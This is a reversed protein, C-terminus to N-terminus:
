AVARGHASRVRLRTRVSSATGRLESFMRERAAAPCGYWRRTLDMGSAVGDPRSVSPLHQVHHHNPRWLARSPSELSRSRCDFLTAGRLPPFAPPVQLQRLAARTSVRSEDLKACRTIEYPFWHLRHSTYPDFEVLNEMDGIEPPIRVLCTRTLVLRKVSKLKGITPPLTIVQSEAERTMQRFPAFEERADEAAVEVLDLLRKWGESETDQVDSHFHTEPWGRDAPRRDAQEFCGCHSLHMKTQFIALDRVPTTGADPAESFTTRPTAAGCHGCRRAWAFNHQRCHLCKM